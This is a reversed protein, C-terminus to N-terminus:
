FDRLLKDPASCCMLCSRYCILLHRNRGRPFSLIMRSNVLHKESGEQRTHQPPWALARFLTQSKNTRCPVTWRGPRSAPPQELSCLVPMRIDSGCLDRSQELKDSRLVVGLPTHYEAHYVTPRKRRTLFGEGLTCEFAVLCSLLLLPVNEVALSLCVDKDYKSTIMKFGRKGRTKGGHDVGCV